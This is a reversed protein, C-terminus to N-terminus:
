YLRAIEERVIEVWRVVRRPEGHITTVDKLIIELRCGRTAELDRRLNMRVMQEDFEMTAFDSPPPKLSFIYDDELNEAMKARDAWPSVSVRRLRPIESIYRWRKDLPECCGYCNLGFRELIPMQYPLIFEAFMRPSISVTEQSEAFGWMDQTRVQGTFDTQPLESTWGFGGSGVYDGQHNACLLNLRELEDLMRLTGDRLKGMIQHIIHPADLMDYMTQELGRFKAMLDSLGLTWWWSQKPQAPLLDGFLDNLFECRARSAGWDLAIRPTQIRDIDAESQIPADWIYSGGNEGGHKVEHVGWDVPEHVLPIGLYPNVVRDDKMQTGWFIERRLIWEVQRLQPDACQLHDELVIEQWGIEPDCFVLPRVPELTNHRRWLDAKELELPRKALDAVQAALERLISRDQSTLNPYPPAINQVLVVVDSSFDRPALHLQPFCM